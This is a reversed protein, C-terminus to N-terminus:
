IVQRLKCLVFSILQTVFCLRLYFIIKYHPAKGIVKEKKNVRCWGLHKRHKKEVRYNKYINDLSGRTGKKDVSGHSIM